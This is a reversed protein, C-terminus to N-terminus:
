NGMGLTLVKLKGNEEVFFFIFIEQEITYVKTGKKIGFDEYGNRIRVPSRKDKTIAKLSAKYTLSSFANKPLYQKYLSAIKNLDAIYEELEPRTTLIPADEIRDDLFVRLHKSAKLADTIEPPLPPDGNQENGALPRISLDYGGKLYYFGMVAKYSRELTANDVKEVLQKSIEMSHFFNADRLRQVADAVFMEDFVVGFDLTDHFRKVFRDAAEEVRRMEQTSIDAVKEKVQRPRNPSAQQATACSPANLSSLVALVTLAITQLNNMIM